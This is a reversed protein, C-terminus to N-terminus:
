NRQGRAKAATENLEDVLNRIEKKSLGHVMAGQEITEGTSFHCGVCHFGYKFLIEVVEPHNEVIEGLTDDKTIAKHM